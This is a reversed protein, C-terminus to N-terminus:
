FEFWVQNGAPVTRVGWVRVLRGVIFLGLGGDVRPTLAGSQSNFGKGPDTVSGYIERAGLAVRVELSEDPGCGSHLVANTLLETFVLALDASREEDFRDPAWGELRWSDAFGRVANRVLAISAPRSPVTSSLEVAYATLGSAGVLAGRELDKTGLTPAM